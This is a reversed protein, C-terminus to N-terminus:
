TAGKSDSKRKKRYWIIFGTVPLSAGILSGLFALIKGPLGLIRGDHIELNMRRFKDAPSAETYKGAYPGSGQLPRLTYQDFFLNDTQYYSGRRHVVSVRFVGDASQPLAFYFTKARPEESRLRLYLSDLASDSRLRLQDTVNASSLCLSDPMGAFRSVLQLTDSQPLTYPVLEKGGSTVSYVAKSFWGLGFILGTFSLTILIVAAYGGLVNHLDFNLRAFPARRQVTFLRRVTKRNWHRPWWLVLGTVLTILFVLVGYGVIPKGIERPLWLTRHGDLVFRFFDFDNQRKTVTKVVEGSYPNVYVTSMGEGPVYYDVSVADFAEGYTIATPQKGPLEAGAAKLIVSPLEVPHPKSHAVSRSEMQLEPDVFRWPQTADTIEDKFVYLCGTICVMFVVASSLLGLWLHLKICVKRFLKRM